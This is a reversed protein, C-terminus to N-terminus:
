VTIELRFIRALSYILIVVATERRKLLGMKLSGLHVVGMTPKCM